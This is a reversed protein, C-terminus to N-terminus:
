MKISDVIPMFVGNLMMPIIEWIESYKLVDIAIDPNYTLENVKVIATEPRNIGIRKEFYSRFVVNRVISPIKARDFMTITNVLLM